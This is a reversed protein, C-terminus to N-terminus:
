KKYQSIKKIRNKHRPKDSFPTQLWIKIIKKTKDLSFKRARLTLINTDNDTRSFKASFADYATAARIGKVKNAAIAMGTGSGCILIGRSNKNKAVQKAVKFAYDPYDVSEESNTGLDEYIIKNKELFYKIEEKRKFGAHDSGLFIQM